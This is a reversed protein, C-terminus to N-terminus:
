SLPVRIQQNLKRCQDRIPLRYPTQSESWSFRLPCFKCLVALQLVHQWMQPMTETLKSCCTMGLNVEKWMNFFILISLSSSRPVVTSYRVVWQVDGSQILYMLKYFERKNHLSDRWCVELLSHTGTRVLTLRRKANCWM